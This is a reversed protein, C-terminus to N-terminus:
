DEHVRTKSDKLRSSSVARTTCDHRTFKQLSESVFAVTDAHNGLVTVAGKSTKM